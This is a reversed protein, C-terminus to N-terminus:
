RPRCQPACRRSSSAVKPSIRRRSTRAATAASRSTSISHGRAHSLVQDVRGDFSRRVPRLREAALADHGAGACRRPLRRHVARARRPVAGRHRRERPEQRPVGPRDDQRRLAADDTRLLRHRSAPHRRLVRGALRPRRRGPGELPGLRCRRRLVLPPRAGATRVRRRRSLRRRQPRRHRRAARSLARGHQAPLRGARHVERHRRLGQRRRHSGLPQPEPDRVEGAQGPFKKALEAKLWQAFPVSLTDVLLLGDPTDLIAVYWGGNSARYVDGKVHTIARGPPVFMGPPPPPM